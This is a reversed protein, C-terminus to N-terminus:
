DDKGRCGLGRVKALVAAHYIGDVAILSKFAGPTRM